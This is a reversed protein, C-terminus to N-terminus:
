GAMSDAGLDDNRSRVDDRDVDGGEGDEVMRWM